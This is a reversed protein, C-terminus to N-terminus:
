PPFVSANFNFSDVCCCKLEFLFCASLSSSVLLFVSTNFRQIWLSSTCRPPLLVDQDVSSQDYWHQGDKVLRQKIVGCSGGKWTYVCVRACVCENEGVYGSAPADIVVPRALPRWVCVFVCVGMWVFECLCTCSDEGKMREHMYKFMCLCVCSPLAPPSYSLFVDSVWVFVIVSQVGLGLTKGGVMCGM